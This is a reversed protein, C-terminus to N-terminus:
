GGRLSLTPGISSLVVVCAHSFDFLLLMLFLLLTVDEVLLFLGLWDFIGDRFDLRFIDINMLNHIRIGKHGTLM